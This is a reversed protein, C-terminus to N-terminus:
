SPYIKWLHGRLWVMLFLSMTLYLLIKQRKACCPSNHISLLPKSDSKPNNLHNSPTWHFLPRWIILCIMKVQCELQSFTHIFIIKPLMFEFHNQSQLADLLVMPTNQISVWKGLHKKFEPNLPFHHLILNALKIKVFDNGKLYSKSAVILSTGILNILRFNSPKSHEKSIISM